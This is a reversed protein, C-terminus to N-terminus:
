RPEFGYREILAELEPPMDGFSEIKLSDHQKASHRSRHHLTYHVSTQGGPMLFFADEQYGGTMENQRGETIPVRFAIAELHPLISNDALYSGKDGLPDRQLDYHTTVKM